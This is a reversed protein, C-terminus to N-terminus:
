STTMRGYYIYMRRLSASSKHAKWPSKHMYNIVTNEEPRWRKRKQALDIWAV